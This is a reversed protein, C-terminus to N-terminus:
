PAVAITVTNSTQGQATIQVPVASNAQAIPPVVANVRYLGVFGPVLGSSQVTAQQGGILVQPTGVLTPITTGNVGAAVGSPFAPSVPGLGSAFIVVTEAPKAPRANPFSGPPAALSFTGQNTEAGNLIVGQGSGSSNMSFIGPATPSLEATVTNGSANPGTIVTIAVSTGTTEFPILGYIQGPSVFFLPAFRNGVKVSVGGLSTPLPTAVAGEVGGQGRGFALDTGSLSFITGPALKGTLSAGGVVGGINPNVTTVVGGPFASASTSNSLRVNSPGLAASSSITIDQRRIPGGGPLNGATTAGGSIGNGSFTLNSDSTQNSATVFLQYSLGRPLFLPNRGFSFLTGGSVPPITGFENINLQGAPTAPLMVDATTTQGESVSFTTPSPLGGVFTTAFSFQGDSYFAGFNAQGIPGDLPEVLVRYSGVPLGAITYSGDTTTLQSAVPVGGPESVAIVHASKVASGTSSTVKGALTARAQFTLVPYLAAASIMDDSQLARSAAGDSSEAFPNMISSLVGSHDLGLLHGVEHIAVSVMDVSNDQGVPSFTFAQTNFLIDSDLIQGAFEVNVVQSGVQTLGPATAFAVLAVALVGPPFAFAADQFSVLNTGDIAANTQTSTGTNSFAIIASPIETWVRFADNLAGVVVALKELEGTFGSVGNPNIVYPIPTSADMKWRKVDGQSTRQFSGALGNTSFAVWWVLLVLLKLFPNHLLAIRM